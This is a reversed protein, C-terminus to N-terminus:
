LGANTTKYLKGLNAAIYGTNNDPCSISNLNEYTGINFSEWNYQAISFNSILFVAIVILLTYIRKM